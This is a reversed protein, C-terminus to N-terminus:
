AVPRRTWGLPSHHTFVEEFRLEFGIPTVLDGAVKLPMDDICLDDPTVLRPDKVFADDVWPAVWRAWQRAYMTGGGSWLFVRDFHTRAEWVLALLGYNPRWMDRGAGYPNPGEVERLDDGLWLIATDDCDIYLDM